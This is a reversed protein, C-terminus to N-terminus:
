LKLNPFDEEVMDKIFIGITNDFTDTSTFVLTIIIQAIVAGLSICWGAVPIAMVLLSGAIAMVNTLTKTAFQAMSQKGKTYQYFDLGIFAVTFVSSFVSSLITSLQLVEKVSRGVLSKVDSQMMLIITNFRHLAIGNQM